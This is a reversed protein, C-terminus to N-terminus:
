PLFPPAVSSFPNVEVWEGSVPNFILTTGIEAALNDFFYSSNVFFSPRSSGLQRIIPMRGYGPGLDAASINLEQALVEKAEAYTYKPLSVFTTLVIIVAALACTILKFTKKKDKAVAAALTWILTVIVTPWRSIVGAFFHRNLWYSALMLPIGPLLLPNFNVIKRIYLVALVALIALWVLCAWQGIIAEALVFIIYSALALVLVMAVYLVGTALKPQESKIESFFGM